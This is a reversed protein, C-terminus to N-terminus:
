IGKKELEDVSLSLAINSQDSIIISFIEDDEIHNFHFLEMACLKCM